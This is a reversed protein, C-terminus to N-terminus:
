VPILTPWLDVLFSLFLHSFENYKGRAVNRGVNVPYTMAHIKRYTNASTPPPNACDVKHDSATKSDLIAGKLRHKYPFYFHFTVYDRIM